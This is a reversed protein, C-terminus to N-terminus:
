ALGFIPLVEPINTILHTPEQLVLNKRDFAGSTIGIVWGCKASKGEQIDSATDGVKAVRAPDTVNALAMARFILDPFPRGQAVEDSTVSVDVLGQEMWGMRDLLHNTIQRDFGTDVAVKIGAAKLAELTLSVGSKETVRPDNRYFSIMQKVFEKHITAIRDNSLEMEGHSFLLRSIAVPKPYGMVQKVEKPTVAIGFEDFADQLVREVDGNDNVTTGALDFVVLEPKYDMTYFYNDWTAGFRQFM